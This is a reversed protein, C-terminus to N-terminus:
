AAHPPKRWPALFVQIKCIDAYTFRHSPGFIEVLGNLARLQESAEIRNM